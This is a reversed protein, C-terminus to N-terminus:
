YGGPQCAELMQLPGAKYNREELLMREQQQM